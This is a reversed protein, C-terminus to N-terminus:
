IDLVNRVYNILIAPDIVKGDKKTTLHLHPATSMGTDGSVGICDGASVYQGKSVFFSSLHCYSISYGATQVIVYKGSRRDYGVGEVRGPLMSFVNEYYAKLDIGNHMCYKHLIPHHRMGFVSTIRVQKLPLSAHLYPLICDSSPSIASHGKGGFLDSETVDSISDVITISDVPAVSTAEQPSKRKIKRECRVNGITNFQASATTCVSFLTLISILINKTEM